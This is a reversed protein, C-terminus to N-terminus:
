ASLLKRHNCHISGRPYPESCVSFDMACWTHRIRLLVAPTCIGCSEPNIDTTFVLSGDRYVEYPFTRGASGTWELRNVPASGSCWPTVTLTFAGPPTGCSATANVANSDTPGGSNIARVVYNYTTGSTVATDLFTTQNGIM